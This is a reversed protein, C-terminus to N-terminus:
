KSCGILGIEIQTIDIDCAGISTTSTVTPSSPTGDNILSLLKINVGVTLPLPLRAPPAVQGFHPFPPPAARHTVADGTVADDAARKL